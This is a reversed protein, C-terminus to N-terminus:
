SGRRVGTQGLAAMKETHALKAQLLAAETVDTMVVVVSNAGEREERM